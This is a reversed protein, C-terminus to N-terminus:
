GVGTGVPGLPGRLRGFAEMLRQQEEILERENLGMARGIAPMGGLVSERDMWFTGRRMILDDAHVVSEQEVIRALDDSGQPSPDVGGSFPHGTAFPDVIPGFDTRPGNSLAMGDLVKSALHRATTYKVGSISFLGKPGGHRGHNIVISRGTSDDSGPRDAPVLGSWVCRVHEPEAELGPAAENLEDLFRVVMEATPEPTTVDGDVSVQFTGAAIRDGMPTLFYTRAGTRRPAVALSYRSLPERDLLVNFALVPRFLAPRDEDFHAALSRCWPGAANIVSRARLTFTAGSKQDRAEIGVVRGSETLLEEARVYNLASVGMSCACRLMLILLREPSTMRADYWVGGGTLGDTPVGPWAKRVDEPRLVDGSALRQEDPRRGEFLRGLGKNMMLAARFASPRKLGEGYLPMMCPLPEVLGPFTRMFWRRERVSEIFRPLDMSQLYRFGGHLIRLSNWSTAGGFDDQEILLAKIGRRASELLLAAGHIGGGIILLDHETSQTADPDRIIPSLSAGTDPAVTTTRPM